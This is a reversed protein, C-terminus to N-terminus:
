STEVRESLELNLYVGNVDISCFSSGEDGYLLKIGLIDQLLPSGKADIESPPDLGPVKTVEMVWAITSLSNVTALGYNPELLEEIRIFGQILNDDEAHLIHPLGTEKVKTMTQLLTYNDYDTFGESHGSFMFTKFAIVGRDALKPLEELNSSSAGSLFAFLGSCIKRIGLKMRSELIEVKTTPPISSPMEFITTIGGAAAAMSGTSFNEHRAGPEGIHTHTDIWGPIVLKGNADIRRDSAVSDDSTLGSIKGEDAVINGPVFEGHIFLRGGVIVLDHTM